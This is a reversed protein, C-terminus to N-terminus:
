FIFLDILYKVKSDPLFKDFEVIKVLFTRLYFCSKFDYRINFDIEKM